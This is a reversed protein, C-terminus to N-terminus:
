RSSRSRIVADLASLRAEKTAKDVTEETYSDATSFWGLIRPQIRARQAVISRYSELQDRCAYLAAEAITEAATESSGGRTGYDRACVLFEQRAREPAAEFDVIAQDPPPIPLPPGFLACGGAVSTALLIAIRM